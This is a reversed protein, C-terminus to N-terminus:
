PVDGSRKPSGFKLGWRRALQCQPVVNQGGVWGGLGGVGGRRQTSAGMTAAASRISSLVQDRRQELPLLALTSDAGRFGRGVHKSKTSLSHSNSHCRDVMRSTTEKRRPGWM